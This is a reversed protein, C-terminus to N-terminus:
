LPSGADEHAHHQGAALASTMGGCQPCWRSKVRFAFLGAIFGFLVGATVVMVVM